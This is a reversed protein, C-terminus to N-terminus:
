LNIVHNAGQLVRTWDDDQQAAKVSLWDRSTMRDVLIDMKLPAPVKADHFVSQVSPHEDFAPAIMFQYVVFLTVDAEHTIRYGHARTAGALVRRHLENEDLGDVLKPYRNRLYDAARKALAPLSSRSLADFQKDRITLM